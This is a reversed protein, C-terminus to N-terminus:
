KSLMEEIPRTLGLTRLVEPNTESVASASHCKFCDQTITEGSETSHEGAHCRYCGPDPDHGSNDPYTGWTVGLEPYANRAYIEAVARGAQEVDVSRSSFVESHETRYFDSLASPIARAAEERTAYSAELLELSKKKVFPLSSSLFGFTLATDLARDPLEFRHAVRNHCDTCQMTLPERGAYSGEEAGARVYTRKEGTTSSAYEVWPIDQREQDIAVFRISVGPACHAGHIGGMKTGGVHMTLVTTEATNAEDEAYRRIINLDVDGFRTRDHCRECTEESLVM